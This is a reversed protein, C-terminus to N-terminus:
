GEGYELLVMEAMNRAEPSGSVQRDRLFWYGKRGCSALAQAASFRVWWHTDELLLAVNQYLSEIQIQGVASAAAARVRYESDGLLRAIMDKAKPHGLRGLGQVAIERLQAAPNETMESFVLILAYNGTSALAKLASVRRSVLVEPDRVLEVLDNSQNLALQEFFSDVLASDEWQEDRLVHVPLLRQQYALSRAAALRLSPKKDALMATLADAVEGTNFFALTEVIIQRKGSRGKALERLMRKQLDLDKWLTVLREHDNGEVLAVTHALLKLLLQPSASAVEQLESIGADPSYLWSVIKKSLKVSLAKESHERRLRFFRLLLLGTLMVLSVIFLGLSGVWIAHLM